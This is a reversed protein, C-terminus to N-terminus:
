DEKWACLPFLEEVRDRLAMAYEWPNMKRDPNMKELAEIAQACRQNWLDERDGESLYNRLRGPREGKLGLFRLALDASFAGCAGYLGVADALVEEPIPLLMRGGTQRYLAHTCEHYKRISLSMRLWADEEMGTDQWPLGSYPGRSLIILMDRYRSHDKLFADMEAETPHQSEFARITGRNIVGRLMSAGQTAPIELGQCRGAVIKLFLEFDERRALEVIRVTGSPLHELYTRDEDDTLFHSLSLGPVQMGRLVVNRYIEAADETEPNIYLQPFSRALFSIVDKGRIGNDEQNMM